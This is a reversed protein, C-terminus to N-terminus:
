KEEELMKRLKLIANRCKDCMHSGYSKIVSVEVDEGCVLCHTHVTVDELAITGKKAFEAVDTVDDDMPITIVDLPPMGKFREGMGIFGGKYCETAVCKDGCIYKCNTPCDSRIEM